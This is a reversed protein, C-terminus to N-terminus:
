LLIQTPPSNEDGPPEIATKSTFAPDHDLGGKRPTVPAWDSTLDIPGLGDPLLRKKVPENTAENPLPVARLPVLLGFTGYEGPADGKEDDRTGIGRSFTCISPDGDDDCAPKLSMLFVSQGKPTSPGPFLQNAASPEIGKMVTRVNEKIEAWPTRRPFM